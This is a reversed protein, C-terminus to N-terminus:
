EKKGTPFPLRGQRADRKIERLSANVATKWSRGRERADDLADQLSSKDTQILIDILERAQALDKQHKGHQTRESAVILKHVAYRAPSPVRVPVGSGFLAVAPRTDEILYELFKLPVAACNLGPIPVVPQDSRASTTVLDVELGLSPSIFKRPLNTDTGHWHAKFSPDARKLIVEMDDGSALNPVAFKAIAFDADQTKTQSSPLYSGVVCPYTLYAITGILVLGQEFLGAKAVAELIRGVPLSPAPIKAQKLLSVTTRRLKSSQAALRIGEAKEQAAPDDELGLYTQHYTSGTRETAYLRKKGRVTRISVTAAPVDAVEVNQVLDEYLTLLNLPIPRM